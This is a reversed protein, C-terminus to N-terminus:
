SACEYSSVLARILLSGAIQLTQGFSVIGDRHGAMIFIGTRAVGTERFLRQVELAMEPTGYHVRAATAAIGLEGARTWIDPSHVHLISQIGPDQDYILGHTLSESSPRVPGQATVRNTQADYSNVVCYQGSELIELGGTQSGSIVFRCKGPGSDRPDIRRSVNGFGYGGYRAPDQGILGLRWLIRRWAGLGAVLAEPVPGSERYQLDFRIVGEEM